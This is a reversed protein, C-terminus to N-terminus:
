KRMPVRCRVVTGRPAGKKISLEGGCMEARYQMIRMGMGDGSNGNGAIGCGNDKITLELHSGAIQHLRITIQQPNGHKIGNGVAEQAIRYLNTAKGQDGMKVARPCVFECRIGFMRSTVEAFNKLAKMLARPTSDVPHVGHSLARADAASNRLSEAIRQLSAAEPDRRQSLRRQLAAVLFGTGLLQQCLGDHLDQAIRRQERESIQLLERQLREREARTRLAVLGFAIDAALNQLLKAEEEQFATLQDSYIALTGLCESRWLLPLAIISAYGRRMAERRWPRFKPDHALDRCAVPKRARMASGVPGTGRPNNAAWSIKAKDVYDQGAGARAVPVIAKAGSMEPFGVWAMRYGGMKVIAACISELLEPESTARIMAEGCELTALLAADVRKRDTIDRENIVIARIDPDHLLNRGTIEMWVYHGEKHRARYETTVVSGPQSLVKQFLGSAKPFDEPHVFEFANRGILEEVAYGYIQTSSFSAYRIVGQQDLLGIRDWSNETLARFFRESGAAVSAIRSDGDPIHVPPSISAGDHATRITNNEPPLPATTRKRKSHPTTL